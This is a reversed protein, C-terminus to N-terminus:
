IGLIQGGGTADKRWYSEVGLTRDGGWVAACGPSRGVSLYLALLTTSSTTVLIWKIKLIRLIKLKPLLPKTEKSSLFGGQKTQSSYTSPPFPCPHPSPTQSTSATAANLFYLLKQHSVRNRRSHFLHLVVWSDKLLDETCNPAPIYNELAVCSKARKGTHSLRLKPGRGM